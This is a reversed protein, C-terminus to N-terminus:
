KTVCHCKWSTSHQSTKTWNEGM